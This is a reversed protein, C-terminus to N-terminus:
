QLLVHFRKGGTKDDQDELFMLQEKPFSIMKNTAKATAICYDYVARREGASLESLYREVTLPLPQTSWDLHCLIFANIYRRLM